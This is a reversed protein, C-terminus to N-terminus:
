EEGFCGRLMRSSERAATMMCEEKDNGKICMKESLRVITFQLNKTLTLNGSTEFALSEVDPVWARNQKRKGSRVDAGM